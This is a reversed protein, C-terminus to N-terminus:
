SAEKSKSLLPHCKYHECKEPMNRGAQFDRENGFRIHLKECGFFMIHVYPSYEQVDPSNKKKLAEYIRDSSVIRRNM